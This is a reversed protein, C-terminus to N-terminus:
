CTATRMGCTAALQETQGATLSLSAPSVSVSAVSVVPTATTTASAVNSLSGFVANVNLTGRFANLQFQYSTSPALSTVTCTRM